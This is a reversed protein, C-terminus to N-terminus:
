GSKGFMLLRVLAALIGHEKRAAVFKLSEARAVWQHHLAKAPRSVPEGFLFRILAEARAQGELGVERARAALELGGMQPSLRLELSSYSARRFAELAQQEKGVRAHEVFDTWAKRLEDWRFRSQEELSSLDLSLIAHPDRDLYRPFDQPTIESFLSLMEHLRPSPEVTSVTSAFRDAGDFATTFLRRSETIREGDFLWPWLVPLQYDWQWAVDDNVKLQLTAM